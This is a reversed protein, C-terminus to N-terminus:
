FSDYADALVDILGDFDESEGLIDALFDVTEFPLGFDEAVSQLYEERDKFGNEQYVNMKYRKGGKPKKINLAQVRHARCNIGM